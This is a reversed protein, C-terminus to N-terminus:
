MYSPVLEDYCISTARFRETKKYIGKLRDVVSATLLPLKPAVGGSDSRYGLMDMLDGCVEYMRVLQSDSLCGRWGGTTARYIHGSYGHSKMFGVSTLKEVSAILEDNVPILMRELLNRLTTGFDSVLEEYFLVVMNIRAQSLLYGSVHHSWRGAIEAVRAEIYDKSSGYPHPYCRRMYPSMDYTSRSLLIDRPDRVLYVAGNFDGIVREVMSSWYSHCAVVADCNFYDTISDIPQRYISSIRNRLGGDDVEIWDIEAQREFGLGWGCAINFVPDSAIRSKPKFGSLDAVHFLIRNLWVNGSRPLGIHLYKM